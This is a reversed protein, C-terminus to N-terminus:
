WDRCRALVRTVWSDATHRVLAVPLDEAVLNLIRLGARSENCVGAIEPAMPRDVQLAPTRSSTAFGLSRSCHGNSRSNRRHVSTLFAGTARSSRSCASAFWGQWEVATMPLRLTEAIQLSWVVNAPVTLVRLCITGPFAQPTPAASRRWTARTCVAHRPCPPRRQERLVGFDTGLHVSSM